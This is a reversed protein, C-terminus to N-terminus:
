SEGNKVTIGFSGTPDEAPVSEKKKKKYRAIAFIFLYIFVSLFLGRPPQESNHQSITEVSTEARVNQLVYVGFTGEGAGCQLSKLFPGKM